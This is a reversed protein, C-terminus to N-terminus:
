VIGTERSLCVSGRNSSTVFDVSFAVKAKVKQLHFIRKQNRKTLTVLVLTPRKYFRLAVFPVKAICHTDSSEINQKRRPPELPVNPPM